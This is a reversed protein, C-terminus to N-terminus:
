YIDFAIVKPAATTGTVKAECIMKVGFFTCEAKLFWTDKDDAYEAIKGTLYHLEFEGFEEEGYDEVANWASGIGLKEGLAVEAEAYDVNSKLLLDVVVTKKSPNEEVSRVLYDEAMFEIFDTWDEGENIYTAKYGLKDVEAMLDVLPKKIFKELQNDATGTTSEPPAETPAEPPPTTPATTVKSVSETTPEESSTSDTAFVNPMTPIYEVDIDKAVNALLSCSVILAAFGLVLWIVIAWFWWKKFIPKKGKSM